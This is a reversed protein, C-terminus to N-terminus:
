EFEATIEQPTLAYYQGTALDVGLPITGAVVLVVGLTVAGPDEFAAGAAVGLAGVFGASVLGLTDLGLGVGGYTSVRRELTWVKVDDGLKVRVEHTQNAEVEVVLPTVGVYVEDVWVEAGDPISAVPIPQMSPTILTACSTMALLCPLLVLTVVTRWRQSRLDRAM